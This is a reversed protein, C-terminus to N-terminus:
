ARVPCVINAMGTEYQQSVPNLAQGNICAIILNKMTEESGGLLNRSLAVFWVAVTEKLM